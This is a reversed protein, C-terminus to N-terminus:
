AGVMLRSQVTHFAPQAFHQIFTIAQATVQLHRSALHALVLAANILDQDIIGGSSPKESFVQYYNLNASDNSYNRSQGRVAIISSDNYKLLRNQKQNIFVLGIFNNMIM